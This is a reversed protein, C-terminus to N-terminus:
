TPSKQCSNDWTNSYNQQRSYITGFAHIVAEAIDESKEKFLTDVNSDIEIKFLVRVSSLYSFLRKPDLQTEPCHM